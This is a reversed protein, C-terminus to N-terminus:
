NQQTKTADAVYIQLFTSFLIERNDKEKKNRIKLEKNNRKDRQTFCEM